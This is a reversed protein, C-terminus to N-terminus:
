ESSDSSKRLPCFDSDLNDKPENKKYRKIVDPSFCFFWSFLIVLPFGVAIVFIFVTFNWGPITLPGSIIDIMELLGYAGAVSVTTTPIMRRDKLELWFQSLKGPM